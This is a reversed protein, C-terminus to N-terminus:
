QADSLEAQGVYRSILRQGARAIADVARELAPTTWTRTDHFIAYLGFALGAVPVAYLFPVAGSLSRGVSFAAFGGVRFVVCVLVVAAIAVSRDQRNTRPRGLFGLAVLAFVLAYLPSTIRDHVEATVRQPYKQSYSDDTPPDLLFLTSREMADYVPTADTPGFQRLDLAYAEFTVVGGEGEVHNDRILDGDQLVLFPGGAHELLLGRAASFTRSEKPDREDNIFV